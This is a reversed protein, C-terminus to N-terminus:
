ELWVKTATFACIENITAGAVLTVYHEGTLGSVDLSVTGVSATKSAAYQSGLTLDETKTVGFQAVKTVGTYTVHLTKFDTLDIMKATHVPDGFTQNSFVSATLTNGSANTWGGTISEYQNGADFLVGDWATSFQKWKGNQYISADVFDFRTGNYVKVANPYVMLSNEKLVNFAVPSSTGTQIWATGNVADPEEASVHWDTLAIDTDVWITNEKANSPATTSGIVIFDLGGGGGGGGVMNLIM